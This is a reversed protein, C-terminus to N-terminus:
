LSKHIIIHNNKSILSCGGLQRKSDRRTNLFKLATQLKKARPPYETKKISKIIKGLIKIQIEDNLSFLDNKKIFIKKHRKKVIKKFVEGFYINITKNSSKLNNISKIIQNDSIGHRKLIPLLKRMSSRLFKKNNNSPDKIFNGFVKKTIVILNKKEESLLPRFLKIKNDLATITSM